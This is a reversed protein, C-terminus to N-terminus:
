LTDEYLEEKPAEEVTDSVVGIGAAQIKDVIPNNFKGSMIDNHIDLLEKAYIMIDKPTVKSAKAILVDKAIGAYCELKIEDQKAKDFDLRKQNVETINNIPLMRKDSTAGAPTKVTNSGPLPFIANIYKTNMYEKIDVTYDGAGTVSGYGKKSNKVTMKTGDQLELAKYEGNKGNMTKVSVVKITEM